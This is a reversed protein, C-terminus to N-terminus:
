LNPTRCHTGTGVCGASSWPSGWMGGDWLHSEPRIWTAASVWRCSPGWQGDGTLSGEKEGRKKRKWLFGFESVFAFLPLLLLPCLLVRAGLAAVGGHQGPKGAASFQM